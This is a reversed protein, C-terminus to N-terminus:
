DQPNSSVSQVRVKNVAEGTQSYRQVRSPKGDRASDTCSM